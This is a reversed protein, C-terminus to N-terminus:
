FLAKRIFRYDNAGFALVSSPSKEGRYRDDEFALTEVHSVIFFACRLIFDFFVLFFVFAPCSSVPFYSHLAWDAVFLSCWFKNSHGTRLIHAHQRSSFVHRQLGYASAEDEASVVKIGGNCM